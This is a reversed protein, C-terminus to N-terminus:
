FRDGLGMRRHAQRAREDAASSGYRSVMARSRWGMLRQLDGEQGGEALWTHAFYHRFAHPNIPRGVAQVGRRQLMKRIGNATLPGRGRTALWLAEFKNAHPEKNRARRYRRLADSTKPGFPVRHEAGGKLRLTIEDYTFDVDDVRLGAMGGVRIGTDMFLRIIATDRLAEFDRGECARLLAKIEDDPLVPVPSEPPNPPSMADFPNDDIEGERKLWAWFQQISKFQAAVYAPRVPAGERNNRRTPRDRLEAFYRELTRRSIERPETPLDNAELWETLYRLHRLYLDITAQSRQAARLSAAWDGALEPTMGPM